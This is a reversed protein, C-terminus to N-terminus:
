YQEQSEVTQAAYHLLHEVSPIIWLDNFCLAFKLICPHLNLIQVTCMGGKVEAVM